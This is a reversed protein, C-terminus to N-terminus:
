FSLSYISSREQVAFSIQLKDSIEAADKLLYLFPSRTGSSPVFAKSFNHLEIAFIALSFAIGSTVISDTLSAKREQSSKIDVSM